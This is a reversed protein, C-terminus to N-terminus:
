HSSVVSTDGVMIPSMSEVNTLQHEGDDGVCSPPFLESFDFAKSQDNGTKTMIKIVSTVCFCFSISNTYKSVIVTALFGKDCVFM